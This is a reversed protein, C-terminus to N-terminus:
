PRRRALALRGYYLAIGLAVGVGIGIFANNIFVALVAGLVIGAAIYIGPSMAAVM